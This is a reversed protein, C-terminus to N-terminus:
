TTETARQRLTREVVELDDPTNVGIAESPDTCPFTVVGGRASAWPIFPLFNREGTATGTGPEAAFTALLELYAALSLSFLGADSEGVAPMVDGERRHLVRVIRGSDTAHSTCMRTRVPARRSHWSRTAATQRPSVPLPAPIFRSRTAGPSGCADRGAPKWQRVRSCSPTSCARRSSRCSSTSAPAVAIRQLVHMVAGRAAPHVVLAVGDVVPAYLSLLHDLMPRGNVLALLKPTHAGLRSGLGAAPIVLLRDMPPNLPGQGRRPARSGGPDCAAASHGAGAPPREAATMIARMGDLPTTRRVQEPSISFFQVPVEFMEAKRRLLASLLHQNAMKHTLPVPISVADRVRIARAASLTDSVYRGFLALYLLSLAHSGAYSIAGLTTRHRYKLRYSEHIDRVSLRRSGWVADLRGLNLHSALTAIDEGNYMGSSEFLIVYDFAEEQLITRLARDREVENGELRRLPFGPSSVFGAAADAPGDHFVTLTVPLDRIGGRVMELVTQVVKNTPVPKRCSSRLRRRQRGARWSRTSSHASSRAPTTAAPAQRKSTRSAFSGPDEISELRGLPVYPVASAAHGPDNLLYHTILCPTAISLQGRGQLYFMARDVIDVASSGTIEADSQINTVLLKIATLNAAIATSLGPTLYSPFLSSHQTGPAYVILDAKGVAEAVRENLRVLAARSMLIGALEERSCRAWRHTEEATPPAALLFIDEIRNQRTADVIAEESGLFRGDADIAVLFANAGDTVNDILGPPLGVLGCYDDVAANFSRGALLYGGSFVLNGVSCDAFSFPASTLKLEAAFRDLRAAVADRTAAPLGEVRSRIPALRPDVGTDEGRVAAALRAGTSAETLGADLRLDLLDILPSPCSRLLRALRSANKRFDSPGLADGLFRRVEGTSAGDDYGNIVVTLAIGPNTVLQETLAGSGRGGSFLVVKLRSRETPTPPM